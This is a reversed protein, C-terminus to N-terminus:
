GEDKVELDFAIDSLTAMFGLMFALICSAIGYTIYYEFQLHCSERVQTSADFTQLADVVEVMLAHSLANLAKPRDLTILGVDGDAVLDAHICEYQKGVLKKGEDEVPIGGEQDVAKTVHILRSFQPITTESRGLLM